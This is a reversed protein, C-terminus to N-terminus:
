TPLLLSGVTYMHISRHHGNASVCRSLGKIVWETHAGLPKSRAHVVQMGSGATKAAGNVAANPGTAAYLKKHITAGASAAHLPNRSQRLIVASYKAARM